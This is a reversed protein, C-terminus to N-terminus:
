DPEETIRTIREVLIRSREAGETLDEVAQRLADGLGPVLALNGERAMAAVDFHTGEFWAAARFSEQATAPSEDLLLMLEAITALEAAIRLELSRDSRVGPRPPLFDMGARAIARLVPRQDPVGSHFLAAFLHEGYRETIARASGPDIQPIVPIVFSVGAASLRELGEAVLADSDTLEPLLPWIALDVHEVRSLGDLDESLLAHLPDAVRQVGSLGSEFESELGIISHELTEVGVEFCVTRAEEIRGNEMEAAAPLYVLNTPKVQRGGSSRTSSGPMLRGSALDVWAASEYPAVALSHRQWLNALEPRHDRLRLRGLGPSGTPM